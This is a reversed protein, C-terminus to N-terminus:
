MKHGLSYVYATVARSQELKLPAGGYPPMISTFQKPAMVGSKLALMLRVVAPALPAGPGLAM